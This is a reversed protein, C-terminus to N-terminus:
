KFFSRYDYHPIAAQRVVEDAGGSSGALQTNGIREVRNGADAVVDVAGKAVKLGVPLHEYQSKEKKEEAKPKEKEEKAKPEEKPPEKEEAKPPEAPANVETDSVANEELDPETPDVVQSEDFEPPEVGNENEDLLTDNQGPVKEVDLEKENEDEPPLDKISTEIEPVNVIPEEMGESLEEQSPPNEEEAMEIDFPNIQTEDKEEAAKRKSNQDKIYNLGSQYINM